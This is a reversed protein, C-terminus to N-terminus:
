KRVECGLRLTANVLSGSEKAIYMEKDAAELLERGSCVHDNDPVRALGASFTPCLIIDCRQNPPRLDPQPRFHLDVGVQQRVSLMIDLPSASPLNDWVLLFEDGGMRFVEGQGKMAVAFRTAVAQILHDGAQHGYTDNVGKLNNIDCLALMKCSSSDLLTMAARRNWLGTLHDHTAHRREAALEARLMAVESSTEPSDVLVDIQDVDHQYPYPTAGYDRVRNAARHHVHDDKTKRFESFRFAIEEATLMDLAYRILVAATERLDLEYIDSLRHLDAEPAQGLKRLLYKM